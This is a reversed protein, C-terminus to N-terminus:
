RERMHLGHLLVKQLLSAPALDVKNDTTIGFGYKTDAILTHSVIVERCGIVSSECTDTADPHAWKRM